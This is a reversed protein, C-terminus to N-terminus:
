KLAQKIQEAYGRLSDAWDPALPDAFVVEGGIARAIAAASSTSFQPQAFIVKIGKEKAHMIIEMLQAPKPAKGQIEVPIQRLGYSKAFYGWSPHFVMFELEKGSFVAKFEEDLTDLAIIFQDYNAQYVKEHVPDISQLGKLIHEAQIKVMPPALWIHPDPRGHADADHHIHDLMAMKDIGKDTHVVLMNPNASAFRPLWVDEFPVGVAFYARTEALAVMQRPKPEYLHPNAGPAVMVSVAVLEGGIQEVFYKQPAISVFVSIKEGAGAEQACFLFLVSLLFVKLSNQNM